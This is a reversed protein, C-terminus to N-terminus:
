CDTAAHGDGGTAPPRKGQGNPQASMTEVTTKLAAFDTRDKESATTLLQITENASKLAADMANFRDLLDKQSTAVTEVAQGIDAFRADHDKKNMGLLHKVKAFLTEGANDQKSQEEFEISIENDFSYIGDKGQNASFRMPETGISAPKDTFALGTLYAGGKKIFDLTPEISAFLKKGSKQMAVIEDSVEVVATLQLKKEGMLTAEQTGLSVVKGYASFLSDPAASLYHELNAVATYVKPDYSAAMQKIWDVSINRGDVTPGETAIAFPKSLPM